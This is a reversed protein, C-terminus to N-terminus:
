GNVAWHVWHTLTNAPYQAPIDPVFPDGKAAHSGKQACHRGRKVANPKFSGSSGLGCSCQVFRPFGHTGDPFKGTLPDWKSAHTGNPGM